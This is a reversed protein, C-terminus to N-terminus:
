RNKFYTHIDVMKRQIDSHSGASKPLADLFDMVHQILQGQSYETEKSIHAIKKILQDITTM